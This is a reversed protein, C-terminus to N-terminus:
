LIIFLNKGDLGAGAGPVASGYDDHGDAAVLLVVGEPQFPVRPAHVAVVM